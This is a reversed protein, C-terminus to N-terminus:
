PSLVLTEHTIEPGPSLILTQGSEQIGRDVIRRALLYATEGSLGVRQNMLYAAQDFISSWYGKPYSPNMM